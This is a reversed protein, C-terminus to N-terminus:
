HYLHYQSLNDKIKQNEIDIDIKHIDIAALPTCRMLRDASLAIGKILGYEKIAGKSFNSCSIEYTCKTSL